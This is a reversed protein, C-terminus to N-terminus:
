NKLNKKEYSHASMNETHLSNRFEPTLIIVPQVADVVFSLGTIFMIIITVAGVKVIKINLKTSLVLFWVCWTNKCVLDTCFAAIFQPIVSLLSCDIFLCKLYFNYKKEVIMKCIKYLVINVSNLGKQFLFPILKQNMPVIERFTFSSPLLRRIYRREYM